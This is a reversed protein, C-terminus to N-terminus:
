QVKEEEKKQQIKLHQRCFRENRVAKRKCINGSKTTAECRGDNAPPTIDAHAITNTASVRRVANTASQGGGYALLSACLACALFVNRKM